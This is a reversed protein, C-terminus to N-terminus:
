LFDHKELRDAYVRKINEIALVARNNRYDKHATCYEEYENIKSLAEIFDERTHKIERVLEMNFRLIYERSRDANRDDDVRIHERLTGKIDELESLIKRNTEELETIEKNLKEQEKAADSTKDELERQKEKKKYDRDFIGRTWEILWSIFKVVAQFSVALAIIVAAVPLAGLSQCLEILDM